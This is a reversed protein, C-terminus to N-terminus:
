KILLNISKYIQKVLDKEKQINGKLKKVTEKEKSRANQKNKFSKKFEM